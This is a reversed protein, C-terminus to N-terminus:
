IGIDSPRSDSSSIPNPPIDAKFADVFQGKMEIEQIVPTFHDADFVEEGKQVVTIKDIEAGCVPLDMAIKGYGGTGHGKGDAVVPVRTLYRPREIYRKRM